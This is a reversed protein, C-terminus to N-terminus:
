AFFFGRSPSSEPSLHLAKLLCDQLGGGLRLFFESISSSARRDQLFLKYLDAHLLAGGLPSKSPRASFPGARIDKTGGITVVQTAEVVGATAAKAKAPRLDVPSRRTAVCGRPLARTHARM